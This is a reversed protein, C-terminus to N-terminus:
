DPFITSEIPDGLANELDRVTVNGRNVLMHTQVLNTVGQRDTVFFVATAAM